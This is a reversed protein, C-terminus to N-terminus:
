GMSHLIEGVVDNMVEGAPNRWSRDCINSLASEEPNIEWIEAGRTKASRALSAAPEVVASTGIVIFLSSVISATYATEYIGPPLMEGFWVVAPRLMGGCHCHPPLIEFPVARDEKEENCKCCRVKWLSGHLEIIRKNGAQHHLRDINQTVLTFSDGLKEELKALAYHAPNPKCSLVQKRREEYFKWVKLPDRKFGMPTAVDEIPVNNWLGDSGRFTAIGSEASIGAGTLVAISKVRKGM